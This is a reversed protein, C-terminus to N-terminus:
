CVFKIGSYQVDHRQQTVSSLLTECVLVDTKHIVACLVYHTVRFTWFSQYPQLGEHHSM